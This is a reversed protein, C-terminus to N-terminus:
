LDGGIVEIVLWIVVTSNRVIMVVTRVFDKTLILAGPVVKELTEEIALHNVPAPKVM